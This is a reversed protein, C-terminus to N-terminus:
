NVDLFPSLVFASPLPAMFHQPFVRTGCHVLGVDIMLSNVGQAVRKKLAELRVMAKAIVIWALLVRM